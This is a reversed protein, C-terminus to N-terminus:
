QLVEIAGLRYEGPLRAGSVLDYWGVVLDYAGAGTDEPLLLTHRDTVIEGAEWISTPYWGGAPPGDGQAVNEGSSDRLQVFVTYDRDVQEALLWRLTITQSSGPQWAPVFETDVLRFVGEGDPAQELMPPEAAVLRVAGAFTSELEQGDRGFVPLRDNSEDDLLAVEIRYLLTQPLDAPIQLRIRDCFLREPEWASTPYSGLGPFTRRGAVVSDNPGIIHLMISYDRGVSRALPRWCLDIPLVDGAAASTTEVVLQKLEAIQGFRWDISGTGAHSNFEDAALARPPTYAPLILIFPALVTLTAVLGLALVPLRHHLSRWGAVLLVAIAALAPFLLRGHPATVQRMWAELSAAVALVTLALLALLIITTDLPQRERRWRWAARALGATAAVVLLGLIAYVFGPYKINGWGFAAWFSYFVELWANVTNLREDPSAFAWPAQFHTDLGLPTGYLAWSRAYWWGAVIVAAAVIGATARAITRRPPPNCRLAPSSPWVTCAVLWALGAIIPAALVLNSAKGLAALGFAAGLALGRWLTPGRRILVALLWLTVAAMAAAAADNSVVNAIFVVQAMLAVLLAAALAVRPAGPAVERALGYVGLILILGFSFSVGRALYLALWGGQLRETDTPYHIAVNKNDPVMGPADSPFHPNPRFAAPPDNLDLLRAPLSALLYYLPPQSAEQRIPTQWAEEGQPPFGNGEALWSVYAFHQPEDPGEFPPFLRTFFLSLVAFGALIVVLPWHAAAHKRIQMRELTYGVTM